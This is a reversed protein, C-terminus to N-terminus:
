YRAQNTVELLLFDSTNTRENTPSIWIATLYLHVNFISLRPYGSDLITADRDDDVLSRSMRSAGAQFRAVRGSRCSAALRRCGNGDTSCQLSIDSYDITWFHRVFRIM